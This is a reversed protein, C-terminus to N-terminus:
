DVGECHHSPSHTPTQVETRSCKWKSYWLNFDGSGAPFYHTRFERTWLCIEFIMFLILESSVFMQPRVSFDVKPYFFYCRIFYCETTKWCRCEASRLHGESRSRLDVVEVARWRRLIFGVSSLEQPHIGLIIVLVITIQYKIKLCGVWRMVATFFLM